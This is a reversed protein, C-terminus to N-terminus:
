MYQGLLRKVKALIERGKRDALWQEKCEGRIVFSMDKFILGSTFIDISLGNFNCFARLNSEISGMIWFPASVINTIKYIYM